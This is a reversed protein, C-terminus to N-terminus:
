RESSGREAAITEELTELRERATPVERRIAEIIWRRSEQFDREGGLGLRYLNALPLMAKSVHAKAAIEYHFRARSLDQPLVKGSLRLNGLTCHSAPDGEKALAEFVELAHAQDQPLGKGELEAMALGHRARPSGKAAARRFWKVALAYDTRAGAGTYYVTAVNHASDLDGDEAAALGWGLGVEWDSPSRASDLLYRSYNAMAELNGLRSARLLWALGLQEDRPRGFDGRFSIWALKVMADTDARKALVLLLALGRRQDQGSSGPAMLQRARIALADIWDADAARKLYFGAREENKSRGLGHRHLLCLVLDAGANGSRALRELQTNTKAIEGARRRLVQDQILSYLAMADGGEGASRYFERARRADKRLGGFGSAHFHGLGRLARASGLSAGRELWVLAEAQDMTRDYSAGRRRMFLGALVSHAESHGGEAARRLWAASADLDQELEVGVMLAEGLEFCAEADGRQARQLLAALPSQPTQSPTPTATPSVPAHTNARSASPPGASPTLVLAVTVAAGALLAAGGAIWILPARSSVSGGGLASLARQVEAGDAFRAQPDKELCRLVLAELEPPVEPRLERIPLPPQNETAVVTEWFTAGTVPPEGTLAAYLLAGLGYVDTFPGSPRGAAQEPAWYGPTGLMAGTKSLAQSQQVELDKTLGFDTLVWHALGGGKQLLVNDPKLDRHILGEGHIHSLAASLQEALDWAEDIPLPGTRSLRQALDEGSMLPMAYWPAGDPEEGADLVSLVNDHRLRQLAGLERRFRERQTAGARGGALLVKIAVEVGTKHRARYVAGMGGKGIKALVEYPGIWRSAQPADM